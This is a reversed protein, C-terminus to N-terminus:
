KSLKYPKVVATAVGAARARKVCPDIWPKQPTQYVDHRQDVWVHHQMNCRKRKAEHIVIVIALIAISSGAVAAGTAAASSSSHLM